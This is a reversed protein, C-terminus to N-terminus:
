VFRQFLCEVEFHFPQTLVASSNEELRILTKQSFTFIKLKVAFSLPMGMEKESDGLSQLQSILEVLLPDEDDMKSLIRQILAKFLRPIESAYEIVHWNKELQLSIDNKLKALFKTMIKIVELNFQFSATEKSAQLSGQKNQNLTNDKQQQQPTSQTRSRAIREQEPTATEKTLVTEQIQQDFSKSSLERWLSMFWCDQIIENMFSLFVPNDNGSSRGTWELAALGNILVQQAVLMHLLPKMDSILANSENVILRGIGHEYDVRGMLHDVRMAAEIEEASLQTSPLALIFLHANAFLADMQMSALHFKKKLEQLNRKDLTSIFDELFGPPYGMLQVAVENDLLMKLQDM